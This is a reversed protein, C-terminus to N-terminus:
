KENGGWRGPLSVCFSFCAIFFAFRALSEGAAVTDSAGLKGVTQHVGPRDNYKFTSIKKIWQHFSTQTSLHAVFPSPFQCRSSIKAQGVREM